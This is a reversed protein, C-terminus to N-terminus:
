VAQVHPLVNTAEPGLTAALVHERTIRQELSESVARPQEHIEKLMFHPYSGREVADPSLASRM